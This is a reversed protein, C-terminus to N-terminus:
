KNLFLRYLDTDKVIMSRPRAQEVECGNLRLFASLIIGNHDDTAGHDSMFKIYTKGLTAQEAVFNSDAETKMGPIAMIEKALKYWQEESFGIVEDM